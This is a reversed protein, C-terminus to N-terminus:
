RATASGDDWKWVVTEATESMKFHKKRIVRSWGVLWSTGAKGLLVGNRMREQGGKGIEVRKSSSGSDGVRGRVRIHNHTLSCDRSTLTAVLSYRVSWHLWTKFGSKVIKAM